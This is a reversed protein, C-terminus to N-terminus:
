PQNVIETGPNVDDAVVSLLKIDNPVISNPLTVLLLDANSGISIPATFIVSKTGATTVRIQYNGSAFETSNNGSAPVAANYGVGGFTPTASALDAGPATIYVDINQANFSVDAVRVRANNGTLSKDYPDDIRVLTPLALNGPAAILTYKKGREPNFTARGIEVNGVTTRVIYDAGNNDVDIYKTAGKYAVNSAGGVPDTNRFLTVNLGAPIAHILRVKPDALNLRDDLSDDDGGGCAAVIAIPAALLAFKFLKKIM